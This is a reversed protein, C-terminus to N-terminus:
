FKTQDSLIDRIKTDYDSKNLVVYTNSKDARRIIIDPNKRLERAATQLEKTLLSKNQHLGRNKLGEAKLLDKLDPNVSIKEESQLKSISQYLTEIEAKKKLPDLKTQLHFNPGLNLFDQEHKKLTYDSLNTYNETVNPLLINGNYLHCLKKVIRQRHKTDENLIIQHLQNYIDEFQQTSLKTKLASKINTIKENLLSIENKASTIQKKIHEQRFETNTTTANHSKAATDHLKFHTYKPLLREKICTENFVVSLEKRKVKKWIKELERIISRTDSDHQYLIHGYTNKGRGTEAIRKAM